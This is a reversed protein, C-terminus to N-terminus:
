QTVMYTDVSLFWDRKKMCAVIFAYQIDHGPLQNNLLSEKMETKCGVFAKEAGLINDGTPPVAPNRVWHTIYGFNDYNDQYSFAVEADKPKTSTCGYLATMLLFCILRPM